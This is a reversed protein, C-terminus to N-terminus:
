GQKAVHYTITRRRMWGFALLDATPGVLRNWLHYKSSGALRPFHRVPVEKVRGGQLLVLAPLFRHMGKFFPVRRVVDTRMVKLPCGTDSVGDHTIWRRIANAIRSSLNKVLGDKRNVRVGTVLEHDAAFAMLADFDEPSTQLDSDIYGAYPTEVHDLGAKLATSLGGNRELHLFGFRPNAACLEEIREASRDTSGDNVFLVTAWARTAVYRSLSDGVRALNSEEDYVPVIITLAADAAPVARAPWAADLNAGAPAIRPPGAGLAAAGAAGDPRARRIAAANAPSLLILLFSASAGLELLEDRRHSAVLGVIAFCGVVAVVHLLRPVPVGLREVLSAIGAHRRRAVPLVLLFLAAGVFLLQSFVLKNVKVGAVVLNHLNTEHQANHRVFLEPSSFGLVRQGWSIEEGAAFLCLLALGAWMVAHLRGCGAGPRRVTWASVGAAALLAAATAWEVPGDEIVYAHEFWGPDVWASVLGVALAAALGVLVLTEFRRATV